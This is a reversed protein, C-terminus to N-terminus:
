GQSTVRDANVGGFDREFLPLLRELQVGRSAKLLVAEDGTLGRALEAYAQEPDAARIIRGRGSLDEFANRFEGMAVIPDVGAETLWRAVRRHLDASWAGLELMTGVVAVRRGEPALTRLTEIAARFSHPNANYCDVLLTLKGMRRVESRMPPFRVDRLRGEAVAPEVGLERGVSLALMANRLMHPGTVSLQFDVGRWRWCLGDESMSWTEPHEDARDSLGCVRVRGSRLRARRALDPPDEGAFVRGDPSLGDLVSLKEAMVGELGGLGDLHAEAVGTIVAADPEVIRTLTGIEGSQNSALEVVWYAAEEPAGLMALPVGVLNNFNKPSAYATPGLVAAIMQRTTTKGNSGTVAVVTPDLQRRRFQALKGLAELTDGVRFLELDGPVVGLDQDVVAGHAGARAADAVFESGDFREGRLAVFLQGAEIRRSDTSIDTFTQGQGEGRLGLAERVRRSTWPLRTM